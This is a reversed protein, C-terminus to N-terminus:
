FELANELASSLLVARLEVDLTNELSVEYYHETLSISTLMSM